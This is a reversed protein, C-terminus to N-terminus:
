ARPARTVAANFAVVVREREGFYPLASHRLYSPFLVLLGDEPPIDWGTEANLYATGFDHYAEVGPRPDYFRNVGNPPRVRCGACAVYYIGCWSCMSHSHVDHYGGDRTLHFWSERMEIRVTTDPPWHRANLQHVVELLAGECFARLRQLAPDSRSLLDFRSEYLASKALPAHPSSQEPTALGHFLEIWRPALEGHHPDRATFIPTAWKQACAIEITGDARLGVM